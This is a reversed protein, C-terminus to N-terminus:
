LDIAAIRVRQLRSFLSYPAVVAFLLESPSFLSSNHISVNFLNAVGGAGCSLVSVSEVVCVRQGYSAESFPAFSAVSATWIILSTVGLFV